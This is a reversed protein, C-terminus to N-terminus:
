ASSDRVAMIKTDDPNTVEVAVAMTWPVHEMPTLENAPPPNRCYTKVIAAVALLCTALLIGLVLVFLIWILAQTLFPM